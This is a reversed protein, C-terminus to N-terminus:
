VLGRWLDYPRSKDRGSGEYRWFHLTVRDMTQPLTTPHARCFFRGSKDVIRYSADRL